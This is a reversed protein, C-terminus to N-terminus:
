GTATRYIFTVNTQNVLDASIGTNFSANVPLYGGTSTMLTSGELYVRIAGDGDSAHDSVEIVASAVDKGIIIGYLFGPAALIVKNDGATAQYSYTGRFETRAVKATNDEYQPSYQERVKQNRDVDLGVIALDGATVPTPTSEYVGMAPTGETTGATFDADDAEAVGGGSSSTAIGGGSSVILLAVEVTGSAFASARVRFKKYGAVSGIFVGAATASSVQSNTSDTLSLSVWDECNITAEFQLTASFTGSLQVGLTAFGITPIEVFGEDKFITKKKEDNQIM